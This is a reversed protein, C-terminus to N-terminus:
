FFKQAFRIIKAAGQVRWTVTFLDGQKIQKGLM